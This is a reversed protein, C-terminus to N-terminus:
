PPRPNSTANDRQRGRRRLHRRWNPTLPGSSAAYVGVGHAVPLLVTLYTMTDPAPRITVTCEAQATAARDVVAQADLRYAIQRAAAIIRRDGMGDLTSVDADLTRRDEIDVSASERVVLTVRWESLAGSQLAALTHPM